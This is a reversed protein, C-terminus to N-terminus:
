RDFPESAPEDSPLTAAFRSADSVMSASDAPVEAPDDVPERRLDFAETARSLWEVGLDEPNLADYPDRSSTMRPTPPAEEVDLQESAADWFAIPLVSPQAGASEAPVGAAAPHWEAAGPASTHAASVRPPGGQARSLSPGRRSSVLKFM